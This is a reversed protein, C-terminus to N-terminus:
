LPYWIKKEHIECFDTSKKLPPNNLVSTYKAPIPSSSLHPKCRELFDDEFEDASLLGQKVDKMVHKRIRSLIKM